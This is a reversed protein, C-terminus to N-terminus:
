NVFAVKRRGGTDVHIRKTKISATGAITPITIQYPVFLKATPAPVLWVEIGRNRAMYNTEKNPKYGSIPKYSIRCVYAVSALGHGKGRGLKVRGKSSLQLNFRQKGDFVPITGHCPNVGKVRGKRASALALVATLPDLSNRLHARTVPVRKRSPKIPPVAKVDKTSHLPFRMAVKGGKGNNSFRFDYSRPRPKGKSVRGSASTRSKWQYFGLLAHVEASGHAKYRGNRTVSSFRFTGAALPHEITYVANM